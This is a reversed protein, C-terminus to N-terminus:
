SLQKKLLEEAIKPNARGKTEKMMAGILFKLAAEKGAKYADVSPANAAIVKAAIEVLAGEDSIQTAGSTEVLKKPSQGTELIKVLIDKAVKGSITGKKVIEVLEALLAPTMKTQSITLNNAKMYATADGILWNVTLKPENSLKAAEEFYDSLERSSILVQADVAPIQYQEMLRKYKDIPLEVLTKNIDDIFKDDVKLPLLDPDPFYRYDHSNEKSRMSSMTGSAEDFLLSEQVIKGGESVVETQRIVEMELAKQISKYSNMNKVETKTGLKTEGMPRISINADCRMSGEELKADCVELYRLIKAVEEMYAKAEEPTRMDPESVIEMLPTGTRNLDVLSYNAGKIGASGKHVLKGADEELHVRTIGFRKLEGNVEVEIYGHEALPKEFQSIQYSKPLDPYFYNKRAFVSEHNITCNLALATKIALQIAKKNIVPLSGPQGTCVPCINTNPKNGFKTSCSCFMKSETLLQAHTELGIVTEYNM